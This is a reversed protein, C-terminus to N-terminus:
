FDLNPPGSGANFGPNQQNFNTNSNGGGVDYNFGATPGPPDMDVPPPTYQNNTGPNVKVDITWTAGSQEGTVQLTTNKIATVSKAKLRVVSLNRLTKKEGVGDQGGQAAGLVGM